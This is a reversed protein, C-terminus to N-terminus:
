SVCKMKFTRTHIVSQEIEIGKPIQDMEDTCNICVVKHNITRCIFPKCDSGDHKISHKCYSSLCNHTFVGSCITKKGGSIPSQCTCHEPINIHTKSCSRCIFQFHRGAVHQSYIM